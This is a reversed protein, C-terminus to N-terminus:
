HIKLTILQDNGTININEARINKVYSTTVDHISIAFMQDSRLENFGLTSMSDMFDRNMIFSFVGGNSDNKLFGKLYLTGAERQIRFQVTTGPSKLQERTLGELQDPLWRM